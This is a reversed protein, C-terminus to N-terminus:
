CDSDDDYDHEEDDFRESDEEQEDWAYACLGYGIGSLSHSHEMHGSLPPLSSDSGCQRENHKDRSKLCALLWWINPMKMFGM